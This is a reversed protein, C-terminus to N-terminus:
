QFVGLINFSELNLYATVLRDFDCMYLSKIDTLFKMYELVQESIIPNFIKQQFVDFLSIISQWSYM